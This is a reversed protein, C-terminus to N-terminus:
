RSRESQEVTRLFQESTMDAVDKCGEPWSTPLRTIIGTGQLKSLLQQSAARGATDNDTMIVLSVPSLATLLSLQQDSTRAGLLAVAPVGHQWAALADISGETVALTKPRGEMKAVQSFGYLCHSIKVGRPYKYKPVDPLPEFFRRIVGLPTGNRNHIPIILADDEAAYGLEFADLVESNTIGRTAWKEQFEGARWFTLWESAFTKPPEPEQGLAKIKNKLEGISVADKVFSGEGTIHNVLKGFTGREDCAYCIFLGKQINVSFSADTEDHFPCL